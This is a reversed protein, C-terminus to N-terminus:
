RPAECTTYCILYGCAQISAFISPAKLNKKGLINVHYNGDEALSFTSLPRPFIEGSATRERPSISLRSVEGALEGLKLM